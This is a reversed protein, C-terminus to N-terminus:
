NAGNRREVVAQAVLRDFPTTVKFADEHGPIMLVRGRDAEVMGADDTVDALDPNGHVAVLTARDFGQPTQVGRLFDRPVTRVVYGSEDVEKITDVVALGPVVAAAGAQVAGIVALFQEVPTFARAADHVLVVDIGDPLVALANSVSEPRAQGGSVVVAHPKTLRSCLETVEDVHTPPAAVVVAGLEPLQSITDLCYGLLTVGLIEELAKPKSGRFREGRGAAAVVVAVSRLSRDGNLHTM